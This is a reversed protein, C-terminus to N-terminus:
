KRPLTGPPTVIPPLDPQFPPLTPTYGIAPLRLPPEPTFKPPEVLVRTPSRKALPPEGTMNLVPPPGPKPTPAPPNLNLATRVAVRPGPLLNPWFMRPGTLAPAVPLPAPAVPPLQPAAAVVPPVQPTVASPAPVLLAAVRPGTPSALPPEVTEAAFGGKASRYGNLHYEWLTRKAALRVLPSSDSEVAEELAVAAQPFIDNVERLAEAAEVRVAASADKRLAVVLAPIVEPCARPDAGGLEDAAAKRKKEDPSGKLTEILERAKAADVKPKRGFWGADAPALALLAFLLAFLLALAFRTRSM